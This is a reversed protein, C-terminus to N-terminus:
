GLISIAGGGAGVVAKSGQALAHFFGVQARTVALLEADQESLGGPPRIHIEYSNTKGLTQLMGVMSPGQWQLFGEQFRRLIAQETVAHCAM